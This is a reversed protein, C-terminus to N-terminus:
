RLQNILGQMQDNMSITRANFQYSRQTMTMDTMEKAINVNSAELAGIKLQIEEEPVLQVLDAVEYDAQEDAPLRFNNNGTAEFFHPRIAEVIALRDEAQPEGNRVTEILGNGKIQISEFGEEILVPGNNGIVPYGDQTTLLIQGNEQPSLYLSGSRSYRTDAVGNEMVQVQLLHNEELIAIDLGRDTSQIAGTKFDIHTHGLVAGTGIRIGNPTKRGEANSPVSHNNLQQFLLSSFDSQRSKYGSTNSNAINHGVMDLKNQLQRMTVAAQIGIRTM